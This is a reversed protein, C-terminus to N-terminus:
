SSSVRNPQKAAQSRKDGCRKRRARRPGIGRNRAQGGVAGDSGFLDFRRNGGDFGALPEVLFRAGPDDVPKAIRLRLQL